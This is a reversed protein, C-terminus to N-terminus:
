DEKLDHNAQNLRKQLLGIQQEVLETKDLYFRQQGALNELRIEAKATCSILLLTIAIIIKFKKFM